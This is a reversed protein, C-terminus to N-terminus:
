FNAGDFAEICLLEVLDPAFSCFVKFHFSVKKQM